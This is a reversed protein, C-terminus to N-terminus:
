KLLELTYMYHYWVTTKNITYIDVKHRAQEHQKDSKDQTRDNKKKNIQLIEKSVRYIVGKSSM